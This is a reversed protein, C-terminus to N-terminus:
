STSLIAPVVVTGVMVLVLTRLTIRGWALRYGTYALVVVLLCYIWLPDLGWWVLLALTLAVTRGM